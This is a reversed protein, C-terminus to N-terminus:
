SCSQFHQVKWSLNCQTFSILQLTTAAFLIQSKLLSNFIEGSCSLYSHKHVGRDAAVTVWTSCLQSPKHNLQFVPCSPILEINACVRGALGIYNVWSISYWTKRICFSLSAFLINFTFKYTLAQPIDFRCVSQDSYCKAFNLGQLYYLRTWAKM